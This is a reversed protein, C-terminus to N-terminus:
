ATHLEDPIFDHSAALFDTALAGLGAILHSAMKTQLVTVSSMM